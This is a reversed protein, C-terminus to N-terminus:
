SARAMGRLRYSALQRYGRVDTCSRQMVQYLPHGDLADAMAQDVRITGSDALGTVRSAINVVDGFIDGSRKLVPGWALGAHVSPSRSDAAIEDVVSLAIQAASAADNAVFMVEDGLNKIVRGGHALATDLVITEFQELLAALEDADLGRSLRTFGDIDIFGVAALDAKKSIPDTAPLLARGAELALHRRWLYLTAREFIPLLDHTVQVAQTAMRESSVPDDAVEGAAIRRGLVDSLLGTQVAALRSLLHGFPRALITASEFDVVGDAVLEALEKLVAVDASTFVRQQDDVEAFGVARWLRRVQELSLGVQEATESRTYRGDGPLLRNSISGISSMEDAAAAPEGGTDDNGASIGLVALLSALMSNRGRHTLDRVPAIISAVSQVASRISDRVAESVPTVKGASERM